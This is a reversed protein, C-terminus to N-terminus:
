LVRKQQFGRTPHSPSHLTVSVDLADPRTSGRTPHKLITLLQSQVAHTKRLQCAIPLLTADCWLAVGKSYSRPSIQCRLGTSFTSPLGALQVRLASGFHFCLFGEVQTEPRMWLTSCKVFCPRNCYSLKQPRMQSRPLVTEGQSHKLLRWLDAQADQHRGGELVTLPQRGTTTSREASRAAAASRFTREDHSFPFFDVHRRVSLWLCSSLCASGTRPCSCM